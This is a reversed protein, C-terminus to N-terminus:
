DQETWIVTRRTLELGGIGPVSLDTMLLDSRSEALLELAEPESEVAEAVELDMEAELKATLGERMLPHDDM